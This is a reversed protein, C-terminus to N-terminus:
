DKRHSVPVTTLAALLRLAEATRSAPEAAYITLTLGPDSIMDVNEYALDLNGVLTHHFLKSGAGHLRVEHSSWRRRFEKSLTSLEGVLDQLQRDHPDDHGAGVAACARSAAGAPTLCASTGRHCSPGGPSSSSACRRETIWARWPLAADQAFVCGALVGM